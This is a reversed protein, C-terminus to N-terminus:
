NSEVLSMIQDLIRKNADELAFTGIAARMKEERKPDARLEGIEKALRGNALDKEEILVAAEADALVKANKYQHNNTVNPSPIMISVKKQMSLESVTMAGARSIVVDAAAMQIPMDYIYECVTVKGKTVKDGNDEYGRALLKEKAEEWEGRM